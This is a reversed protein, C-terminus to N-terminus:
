REEEPFEEPYVQKNDPKVENLMLNQSNQAGPSNIDKNVANSNNQKRHQL